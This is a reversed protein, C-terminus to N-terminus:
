KFQNEIHNVLRKVEEIMEQISEKTVLIKEGNKNKGNRHVIDHRISVSKYVKRLEQDTLFEIGLTSEYMGKVKAINHYIVEAMTEAVKVSSKEYYKFIDNYGIKENEYDKFTEIFRRIYREESMVKNIFTDSLYTELITIVNAYLMKLYYDNSNENSINMRLLEELNDISELFSTYSNNQNNIISEIADYNQNGELNLLIRNIRDEVLAKNNLDFFEINSRGLKTKGVLLGREEKIHDNFKDERPNLIVKEGNENIPSRGAKKRNCYNCALTLNKYDNVLEPFRSKPFYHDINGGLNGVYYGCYSCKGNFEEILQKRYKIYDKRYKVKQEKM